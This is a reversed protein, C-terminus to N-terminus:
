RGGAPDSRYESQDACVGGASLTTPLRRKQPSLLTQLGATSPWTWSATLVPHTVESLRGMQHLVSVSMALALGVRSRGQFRARTSRAGPEGGGSSTGREGASLDMAADVTTSAVGSAGGNYSLVSEANYTIRRM